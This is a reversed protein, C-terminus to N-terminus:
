KDRREKKEEKQPAEKKEEKRELQMASLVQNIIPNARLGGAKLVADCLVELMKMGEEDVKIMM